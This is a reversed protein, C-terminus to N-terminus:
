PALETAPTSPPTAAAPETPSTQQAQALQQRLHHNEARLRANVLILQEVKDELRKLENHM